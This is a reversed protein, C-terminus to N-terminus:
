SLKTGDRPHPAGTGSIIKDPKNEQTPQNTGPKGRQATGLSEEQMEDIMENDPHPDRKVSTDAATQENLPMAPRDEGSNRQTM